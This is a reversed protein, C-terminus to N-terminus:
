TWDGSLSDAANEDETLVSVTFAQVQHGTAEEDEQRATLFEADAEAWEREADVLGGEFIGHAVRTSEAASYPDPKLAAIRSAAEQHERAQAQAADPELFLEGSSM